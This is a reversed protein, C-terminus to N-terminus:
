ALATAKAESGALVANTLANVVRDQEDATLYPHMPLSVVEECARLSHAVGEPSVRGVTLAPQNNLAIPYHVTTPIGARELAARVTDRSPVRVTYQAFVSQNHHEIYPAVIVNAASSSAIADSYRAGLRARAEVESPFVDLKALLIAAQLTDLRGNFGLRAHHYRRDQGHVRIQRMATALADDNTFCAGGDGYCGLPKSPFFSTCGILAQGGAAKGRYTGGVSQAADQIVILGNAHAVANISDYDSVQGFLDVPIIARTAPTIAAEIRAPDINFTAPDVDVFVPVAGLLAVVEAAAIYSFAPTIVEDGREIGAAILAIMLADTGNAVGICHKIGVFSALRGEFEAVEPGMIYQGHALVAAMRADIEGKIRAQQAALDIFQM